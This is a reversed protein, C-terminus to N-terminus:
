SVASALEEWEALLEEVRAKAQEHEESLLRLQEADAKLAAESLQEEILKIGAEAKEIDKEVDEVTRAKNKGKARPPAATKVV